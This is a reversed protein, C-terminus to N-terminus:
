SENILELFGRLMRYTLGWITKGGYELAPVYISPGDPTPRSVLREIGKQEMYSLPVWITDQVEVPDPAPSAEPSVLYVFPSVFMNTPRGRAMAQLETLRGLYEGHVNLDIGVEEKTERYITFSLDLDEPDQRGGPFAMHGSWPDQPHHARHIFLMHLDHEQPQLIMAVAARTNAEAAPSEPQYSALRRRIRKIKRDIMDSRRNAALM